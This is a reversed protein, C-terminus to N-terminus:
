YLINYYLEYGYCFIKINILTHIVIHIVFYYSTSLSCYWVTYEIKTSIWMTIILNKILKGRNKCLFLYLSILNAGFYLITSLYQKQSM